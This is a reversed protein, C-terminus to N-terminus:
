RAYERKDLGMGDLARGAPLGKFDDSGHGRLAGTVKVVIAFNAAPGEAYEAVFETV